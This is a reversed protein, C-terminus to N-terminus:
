SSSTIRTYTYDFQENGAGNVSKINIDELVTVELSEIHLKGRSPRM